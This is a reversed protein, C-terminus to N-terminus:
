ASAVKLSPQLIATTDDNELVFRYGQSALLEYCANVEYKPMVLHEFRIITPKLMSFDISQIIAHDFGEADIQLLDIHSPVNARELLTPLTWCTIKEEVIEHAAHGPKVVLHKQTSAVKAGGKRSYFTIETNEPGIAVPFFQLGECDSYNRKLQEFVDLQPEVLVGKWHRQRILDFLPDGSQGDFAGVQVFFFQDSPRCYAATVWSLTDGIELEPHDRLIKPKGARKMPALTRVRGLRRLNNIQRLMGVGEFLLHM